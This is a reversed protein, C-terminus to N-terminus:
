KPLTKDAIITLPIALEGKANYEKNEAVVRIDSTQPKTGYSVTFSIDIRDNNAPITKPKATVGDPLSDLTIVVPGKFGVREIYVLVFKTDGEKVTRSPTSLKAETIRISGTKPPPSFPSWCMVVAIVALVFLVGGGILLWVGIGAKGTPAPPKQKARPSEEQPVAFQSVTSAEDAIPTALVPQAVIPTAMPIAGAVVAGPAVPKAMVVGAVPAPSPVALSMAYPTLARAVEAPTQFRDDPRRAMMKRVIEELGPLVEPRLTRLWPPEGTLRPSLKELVTNGGFPPQATLLYFLTAGLAYIDARIDAHHADQAQEPAVYDVTGLLHGLQTLRATPAEESEYRALGFDLIKVVPAVEGNSRGQAVMLNGPKIDRHVIGREHAQQLGLATQRAFEAAEHIPLAGQQKVRASLNIGDIFDMVLYPRGDIEGADRVLAINPHDLQSAAQVERRFREMANVSNVREKHITKLAVMRELRVSWAKYIQGMAGDGIRERLRYDGLILQDHKEQLIQNVQFPTLFDRRILEKAFQHSDAFAGLGPRLEAAQGTSLFQHRELWSLMESPSLIAM